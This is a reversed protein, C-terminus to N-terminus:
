EERRSVCTTVLADRALQLEDRDSMIGQPDRSAEPVVVVLRRTVAALAESPWERVGSLNWNARLLPAFIQASSAEDTMLRVATAHADEPRRSLWPGAAARAVL